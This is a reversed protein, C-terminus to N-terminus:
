GNSKKAHTILRKEGGYETERVPRSQIQTLAEDYNAIECNLTATKILMRNQFQPSKGVNSGTQGALRGLVGVSSLDGAALLAEVNTEAPASRFEPSSMKKVALAAPAEERSNCGFFLLLLAGIELFQTKM